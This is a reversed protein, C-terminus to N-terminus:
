IKMMIGLLDQFSRAGWTKIFIIKKRAYIQFTYKTLSLSLLMTIKGLDQFIKVLYGHKIFLGLNAMTKAFNKLSQFVPFHTQHKFRCKLNLSRKSFFSDFLSLNSVVSSFSGMKKIMDSGIIPGHKMLM